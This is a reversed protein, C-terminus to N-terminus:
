LAEALWMRPALSVGPLVFSFICPFEHVGTTSEHWHIAFGICHQLTFYLLFLFKSFFFTYICIYNFVAQIFEDSESWIQFYHSEHWIWLNFFQSMYINFIKGLVISGSLIQTLILVSATQRCLIYECASYEVWCLM